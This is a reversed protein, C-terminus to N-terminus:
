GRGVGKTADIVAAGNTRNKCGSIRSVIYQAALGLAVIGAVVVHERWSSPLNASSGSFGAFILGVGGPISFGALFVLITHPLDFAKKYYLLMSAYIAALTLGSAIGIATSDMEVLERAKSASSPALYVAM